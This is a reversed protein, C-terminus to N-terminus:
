RVVVMKRAPHNGIKIMYTGSVPADFRLPAYEDRKTALMHGNVDYFMVMNGNAGEVVIQGDRQYIKASIATDHVYIYVTDSTAAAFYAAINTDSTVILSRPNETNGDSWHDFRYGSNPIANFVATPASCTPQTLVSVSGMTEDASAVEFQYAPDEVFNSFYSWRSYYSMSSGCPINIPITTNIGSFANTGLLPAVIPQSTIETIGSCGSFAREGISTVSSPITVSTLGSCSCFAYSGISTVGSLITVSTLGICGEFASYGISTVSSPITVSTLGSCCSFAYDDILTVSSPITISTLGSGCFAGNGISTVSSPITVSTLSRCDSFASSGISTVGDPITVSTLGSCGEFAGDGISTVGDPITVSTLVSCGDFAYNGISTVGEPIVLNTIEEGNITLSHSYYLPNSSSGRFSISCWQAITGTYVTTTLGSCGYFASYGISTVSSPITVSTLGSCGYFAFRSISTVGEPIVLNTIEAGDITLSHSDYLPNANYDDFTINCWQAVTGTYITTALSSCYSFAGSGISTVSSPITVSTLGSCGYFAHSGISTVSSPITVSTLGSCDYFAHSGISTVSSPITVSTLGSCYYFAGSGISTVDYNTGYHTVSDPIILNGTVYGYYPLVVEAHGDAINYYLTQGSPAVASFDYAWASAACLAM